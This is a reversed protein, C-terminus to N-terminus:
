IGSLCRNKRKNWKRVALTFSRKSYLLMNKPAYLLHYCPPGRKSLGIKKIMSFLPVRSSINGHPWLGSLFPFKMTGECVLSFYSFRFQYLKVTWLVASVPGCIEFICSAAETFDWQVTGKDVARVLSELAPLKMQLTDIVRKFRVLGYLRICVRVSSVTKSQNNRKWCCLFPILDSHQNRHQIWGATSFGAACTRGIIGLDPIEKLKGLM